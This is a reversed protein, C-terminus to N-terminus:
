SGFRLRRYQSPTLGLSGRFVRAFHSPDVFGARRGIEAITLRAFLRSELMRTAVEIRADMLKKGFTEGYSALIRHVTRPSVGFARAIDGATLEL